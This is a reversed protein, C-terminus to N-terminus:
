IYDLEKSANFNYNFFVDVYDIASAIYGRGKPQCKEEYYSNENLCVQYNLESKEVYSILHKKNNIKPYVTFFGALMAFVISLIVFLIIRSKNKLMM